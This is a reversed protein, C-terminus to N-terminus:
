ADPKQPTNSNFCDRYIKWSGDPQHRFITLFKGDIHVDKGQVVRDATYVGRSYAWDAGVTIEAPNIQMASTKVAAWAKPVVKVLVDKGRAPVGPPMQIGNEDYLSLWLDSDGAVVAASYTEWVKQIAAQDATMEAAVAAGSSLISPAVMALPVLVALMRKNM